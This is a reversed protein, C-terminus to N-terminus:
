PTSTKAPSNGHHRLLRYFAELGIGAEEIAPENFPGHQPLPNEAPLLPNTRQGATQNPRRAAPAKFRSMKAAADGGGIKGRQAPASSAM